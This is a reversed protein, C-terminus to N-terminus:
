PTVKFSMQQYSGWGQGGGEKTRDMLLYSLEAKLNQKVPLWVGNLWPSHDQVETAMCWVSSGRWWCTAWGLLHRTNEWLTTLTIWASPTVLTPHVTLLQLPMRTQWCGPGALTRTRTHCCDPYFAKVDVPLRNSAHGWHEALVQDHCKLTDKM